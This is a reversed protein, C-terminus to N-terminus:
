KFTIVKKTFFFLFFYHSKFLHTIPKFIVNAYENCKYKSFNESLNLWISISWFEVTFMILKLKINKFIFKSTNGM